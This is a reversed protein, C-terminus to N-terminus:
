RIVPELGEVEPDGKGNRVTMVLGRREPDGVGGWTTMVLGGKEPDGEGKWASGEEGAGFLDEVLSVSEETGTSEEIFERRCVSSTAAIWNCDHTNHSM